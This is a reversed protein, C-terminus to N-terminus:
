AGSHQPEHGTGETQEAAVEAHMGNVADRLTDASRTAEEAVESFQSASLVHGRERAGDALQGSLRAREELSRIALWLAREVASSQEEFLDRPAWRHGVFCDYTEAGGDQSIYLPGGCEPCTLGSYRRSRTDTELSGALLGTIEAALALRDHLRGSLRPRVPGAVRVRQGFVAPKAHAGIQVGLVLRIGPRARVPLRLRFLRGPLHPVLRARGSAQNRGILPGMRILLGVGHGVLGPRIGAAVGRLLRGHSHIPLSRARRRGPVSGPTFGSAM